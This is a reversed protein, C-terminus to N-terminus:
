KYIKNKVVNITRTQILNYFGISRIIADSLFVIQNRKILIILLLYKKFFFKLSLEIEFNNINTLLTVM